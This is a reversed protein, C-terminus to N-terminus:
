TASLKFTGFSMPLWEYVAQVVEEVDNFIRLFAADTEQLIVRYVERTDTSVDHIEATRVGDNVSLIM